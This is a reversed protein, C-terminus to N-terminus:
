RTLRSQLKTIAPELSAAAEPSAAARAKLVALVEAGGYRTALLLVTGPGEKNSNKGRAALELHRALWERAEKHREALRVLAATANLSVADQREGTGALQALDGVAALTELRAVAILREGESARLDAARRAVEGADKGRALTLAARQAETREQVGRLMDAILARRAPDTERRAREEWEKIAQRPLLAVLAELLERRHPKLVPQGSLALLSSVVEPAGTAALAALVASALVPDASKGELRSLLFKAAEAGRLHGALDLLRRKEGPLKAAALGDAILRLALSRDSTLEKLIEDRRGAAPWAAVAAALKQRRREEDSKARAPAPPRAATLKKRSAAPERQFGFKGLQSEMGVIMATLAGFGGILVGWLCLRVWLPQERSLGKKLRATLRASSRARSDAQIRGSSPARPPTSAAESM